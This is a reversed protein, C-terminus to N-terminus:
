SNQGTTRNRVSCASAPTGIRVISVIGLFLCLVLILFTWGVGVLLRRRDAAEPQRPPVGDTTM